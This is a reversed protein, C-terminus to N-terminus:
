FRFSWDGLIPKLKASGAMATFFSKTVGCSVGVPAIRLCLVGKISPICYYLSFMPIFVGVEVFPSLEATEAL